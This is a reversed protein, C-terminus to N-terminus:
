LVIISFIRAFINLFCLGILMASSVTGYIYPATEPHAFVLTCLLSVMSFCMIGNLALSIVTMNNFRKRDRRWIVFLFFFNALTLLLYFCLVVIAVSEFVSM